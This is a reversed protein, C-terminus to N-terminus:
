DVTTEYPWTMIGGFELIQSYGMAALKEAAQKSRNGSRCYILIKQDLDPLEDPWEDQIEQNPILIAGPIHGSRYEQETRVDVIIIDSEEDMIRKAEEQSIQTYGAEQVSAQDGTTNEGCGALLGATLLAAAALVALITIKKM